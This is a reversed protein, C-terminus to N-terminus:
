IKSSFFLMCITLRICLYVSSYISLFLCNSLYIAPCLCLSLYSALCPLYISLHVLLYVFLCISLDFFIHFSIFLYISLSSELPRCELRRDIRWRSTSGGMRSWLGINGIPKRDKFSRGGGQATSSTHQLLVDLSHMEVMVCTNKEWPWWWWLTLFVGHGWSLEPAVVGCRAKSSVEFSQVQRVLVLSVSHLATSFGWNSDRPHLPRSNSSTSICSYSLEIM